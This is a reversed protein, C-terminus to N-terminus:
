PFLEHGLCFGSLWFFDCVFVVQADKPMLFKLSTVLPNM